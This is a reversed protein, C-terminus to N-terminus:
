NGSKAKFSDIEKQLERIKSIIDKETKWQIELEKSKEGLEAIEKKLEKLRQKSDPDKEKKLANVEIELKM